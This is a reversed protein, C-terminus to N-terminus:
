EEMYVNYYITKHVKQTSNMLELIIEIDECLDKPLKSAGKIHINAPYEIHGTLLDWVADFNRGFWSPFDLEESIADYFEDYTKVNTFDITYQKM